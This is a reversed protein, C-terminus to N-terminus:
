MIVKEKKVHMGRGYRRKDDYKMKAHARQRKKYILKELTDLMDNVIDHLHDTLNRCLVVDWTEYMKGIQDTKPNLYQVNVIRTRKLSPVHLVLEEEILGSKTEYLTLVVKASHIGYM